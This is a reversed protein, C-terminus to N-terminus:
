QAEGDCCGRSFYLREATFYKVIDYSNKRFEEKLFKMFDDWDGDRAIQVPKFDRFYLGLKYGRHEPPGYPPYSLLEEVRVRGNYRKGYTEELLKIVASELDKTDMIATM